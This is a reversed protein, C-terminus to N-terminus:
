AGGAWGEWPCALALSRRCVKQGQEPLPGKGSSSPCHGLLEDVPGTWGAMSSAQLEAPPCCPSGGAQTQTKERRRGWRAGTSPDGFPLESFAGQNSPILLLEHCLSLKASPLHM